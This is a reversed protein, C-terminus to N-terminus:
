KKRPHSPKTPARLNSREQKELGASESEGTLPSSDTDPSDDLTTEIVPNGGGGVGAFSAEGQGSSAGPVGKSREGEPPNAPSAPSGQVTKPPNSFVKGGLRSNPIERVEIKAERNGVRKKQAKANALVESDYTEPQPEGNILIQFM